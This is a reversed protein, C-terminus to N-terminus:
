AKDTYRLGHETGALREVFEYNRTEIEHRADETLEWGDPRPKKDPCSDCYTQKFEGYAADLERAERHYNHLTCHVVKSGATGLNFLRQIRRAIPGQAGQSALIHECNALVREPSDDKVAIRLSRVLPDNEDSVDIGIAAAMKQIVQLTTDWQYDGEVPEGRWRKRAREICRLADARVEPDHLNQALQEGWRYADSDESQVTMLASIIAMVVANPDRTEEGIWAALKCVQLASQAFAAEADINGESHLTILYPAVGVVINTLARGLVWRDPHTAAYRALRVCQNYKLAIRNTSVSRKAYLGLVMRPNGHQLHQRFAMMLSADEYVLVGLEAAHRAILSYFKLYNPGSATLNQLAKANSLLVKLAEDGPRESRATERYDIAGLQLSAWFKIEVTSDPDSLISATRIRAQDLERKEFLENIRKLKLLDNKEQFARHLAEQDPLHKLSEAFFRTPVSTLQRTSLVLYIQNLSVLLASASGPLQHCTPIRVTASKAGTDRLAAVLERDLQPACWYVKGSAVDTHVLLLPARMELAYHRAHDVSLEQSIFAHDVSYGSSASSKLQVHFWAGTPSKGDFVQVYSDVGYDEQVDNVVWGLPELAERLLRKGTRNIEHEEPKTIV